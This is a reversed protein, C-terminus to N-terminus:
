QVLGRVTGRVAGARQGYGAGKPGTFNILQGRINGGPARRPLVFYIACCQKGLDNGLGRSELFILM